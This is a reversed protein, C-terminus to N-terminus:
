DDDLYRKLFGTDYEISRRKTGFRDDNTHQVERVPVEPFERRIVYGMHSRNIPVDLDRTAMDALRAVSVWGSGTYRRLWGRVAAYVRRPPRTERPRGTAVGHVQRITAENAMKRRSIGKYM